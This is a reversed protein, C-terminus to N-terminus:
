DLRRQMNWTYLPRLYLETSICERAGNRWSKGSGPQSFRSCVMEAVWKSIAYGPASTDSSPKLDSLLVETGYEVGVVDGIELVCLTSVFNITKLSHSTALGIVWKLSEVNTKKLESYPALHNVSAGVHFISSATMGLIQYTREDLGFRDQELSGRHVIVRGNNVAKKVVKSSFLRYKELSALVRSMARLDSDARVAVCVVTRDTKVLLDHLIHVGLFGTAGTLVIAGNAIERDLPLPNYNMTLKRCTAIEIAWDISASAEIEDGDIYGALARLSQYKYLLPLSLKRDTIQTLKSLIVVSSISDGGVEFFSTSPDILSKDVNLASSWIDKIISETDSVRIRNYSSSHPTSPMSRMRKQNERYLDFLKRKDVKFLVFLTVKQNINLPLASLKFISTPISYHPLVSAVRKWMLDVDVDLPTVFAVLASDKALVIAENVGPCKSVVSSVEELEVRYGKIKVMDDQRGLFILEDYESWKCIDGTRYMRTGDNIFHNPIFSENTLEV